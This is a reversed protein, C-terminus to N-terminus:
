KGGMARKSAKLPNVKVANVAIEKKVHTAFNCMGFKWKAEPVAYTKCYKNPEVEIVRECGECKEVIPQFLGGSYKAALNVEKAPAKAM